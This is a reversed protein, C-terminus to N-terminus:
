ADPGSGVEEDTIQYAAALGHEGFLEPCQIWPYDCQDCWWAGADPELKYHDRHRELVDLDRAVDRLIRDPDNAAIHAAAEKVGWPVWVAM